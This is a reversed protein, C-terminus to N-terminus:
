KIVFKIPVVYSAEMKESGAILQDIPMKLVMELATKDLCPSIGQELEVNQLEGDNSITFSVYVTGQEKNAIAHTPYVLNNSLWTRVNDSTSKTPLIGNNGNNAFSAASLLLGLGVVLNKMDLQNLKITHRM